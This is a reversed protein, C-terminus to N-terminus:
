TKEFIYECFGFNLGVNPKPNWANRRIMELAVSVDDFAESSNSALAVIAEVTLALDASSVNSSAVIGAAPVGRLQGNARVAVMLRMFGALQGKGRWKLALWWVPQVLHPPASQALRQLQELEDIHQRLASATEVSMPGPSPKALKVEGLVDDVFKDYGFQGSAVLLDYAADIMAQVRPTDRMADFVADANSLDSKLPIFHKMPELGLQYDGDILILGTRLAAAEFLRPSPGTFAYRDLGPFCAAEVQEFPARPNAKLYTRVKRKIDGRPDCMSAGSVGIITFRCSGLFRPWDTARLTDEKKTSIDTKLGAADALLRLQEAVTGKQMGHRGYHPQLMTVRTGIDITRQDLPQAFKELEPADGPQAYGTLGLRLRATRHCRPYLVELDNTIPSFIVNVGIEQLWDDLVENCTYDDQAIAIKVARSVAIFAFDKKIQPLRPSAKYTLFSNTMIIADYPFAALAESVPANLNHYVYLVGQRYRPFSYVHDITTQRSDGRLAHLVLVKYPTDTSM